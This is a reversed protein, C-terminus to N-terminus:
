RQAVGAKKQSLKIRRDVAKHSCGILKAIDRLSLSRHLELLEDDGPWSYRRNSPHNPQRSPKPSRRGGAHHVAHSEVTMLELNDPSDNEKNGDIHHALEDYRLLRGLKVELVLTARKVYGNRSARPHTGSIKCYWYGKSSKTTGGKWNPNSDGFGHPM